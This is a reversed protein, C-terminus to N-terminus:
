EDVQAVMVADGLDDGIRIRRYKPLHLRQPGFPDHPDVAPDALPRGIRLIGTQRSARDLDERGIDFHEPRGAFEGHRDKTLLFIRFLDPEFITEEIQAALAQVSVDHQAASSM